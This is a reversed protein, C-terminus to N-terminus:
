SVSVVRLSVCVCVRARLCACRWVCDCLNFYRFKEETAGFSLERASSSRAVCFYWIQFLFYFAGFKTCLEKNHIQAVCGFRIHRAFRIIFSHISWKTATHQIRNSHNTYASKSCSQALSLCPSTRRCRDCNLQRCLVRNGGSSSLYM